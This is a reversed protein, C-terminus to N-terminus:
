TMRFRASLLTAPFVLSFIALGWIPGAGLMAFASAFAILSLLAIKVTTQVRQPSPDSFLKVARYVVTFGLMGILLAFGDNGRIRFPFGAEALRPVIAMCICGLVLVAVGIGLVGRSTEGAERRAILTVGMVYVGM